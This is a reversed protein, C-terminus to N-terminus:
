DNGKSTTKVTDATRFRLKHLAEALVRREDASLRADVRIALEARVLEAARERAAIGTDTLQLVSSRRDDPNAQRTVLGARELRDALKSAGGVTIVLDDALDNVRSNGRAAIVRLGECDSLPLGLEARLRADLAGWLEIELGVLDAFLAESTM